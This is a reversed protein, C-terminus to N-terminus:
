GKIASAIRNREQAACDGPGAPRGDRLMAAVPMLPAHLTFLLLPLDSVKEESNMMSPTGGCRSVTVRAVPESPVQYGAEAQIRYFRDGPGEGLGNRATDVLPEGDLGVYGTGTVPDVVRDTRIGRSWSDTLFKANTGAGQIDTTDNTNRFDRRNM